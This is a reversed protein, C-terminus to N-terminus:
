RTKSKINNINDIIPESYKDPWYFIQTTKLADIIQRENEFSLEIKKLTGEKANYLYTPYDVKTLNWLCKKVVFIIQLLM